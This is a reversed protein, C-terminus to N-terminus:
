IKLFLCLLFYLLCVKETTPFVKIANNVVDHLHSYAYHLDDGICEKVSEKSWRQDIRREIELCREIQSNDMAAVALLVLSRM